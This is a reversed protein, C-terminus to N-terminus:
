AAKPQGEDAAEGQKKPKTSGVLGAAEYNAYTGADLEVAQGSKFRQGTGADNFNRQAFGKKKVSM